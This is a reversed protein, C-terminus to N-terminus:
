VEIPGRKTRQLGALASVVRAATIGALAAVWREWHDSALWFLLGALLLLRPPGSALALWIRVRGRAMANVTAHLAVLNLWGLGYSAAAILVLIIADSNM